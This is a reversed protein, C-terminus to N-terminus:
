VKVAVMLRAKLLRFNGPTGAGLQSNLLQGFLERSVKGWSVGGEKELVQAAPTDFYVGRGWCGIIRRPDLSTDGANTIETETAVNNGELNRLSSVSGM